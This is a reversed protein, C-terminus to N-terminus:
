KHIHVLESCQSGRPEQERLAQRRRAAAPSTMIVLFMTVSVLFLAAQIVWESRGKGSTLFKKM